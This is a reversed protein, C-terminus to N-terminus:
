GSYLCVFGGITDFIPPFHFVTCNSNRKCHQTTNLLVYVYYMVCMGVCVGVCVCVCM